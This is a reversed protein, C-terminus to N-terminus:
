YNVGIGYLHTEKSGSAQNAWVAKYRVDSGSTCTTEGLKVMKIGTSFVPTVATYSAAETWNSGGNCTFYIKLDTGITATGANDKYNMVGSVKTQASSPVSAIGILTGTANATAVLNPTFTTGSPYRCVDSIRCEDIYGQYEAVTNNDGLLPDNMTFNFGSCSTVSRAVGNEYGRINDGDRTIAMHTWETNAADDALNAGHVPSWASGNGVYIAWNPYTARYFYCNPYASSSSSYSFGGQGSGTGSPYFWMEVTWDGTGFAFNSSTNPYLSNAATGDFNASYTGFKAQTSSRTCGSTNNMTHGTSSSDLLLTEMHLLLETNSDSTFAQVASSITSWYESANRDGDTETGIGTDDEFQDIFTNPLNFAAKNENVAQKLALTTLDQRVPTLDTPQVHATVSSASIRADAFTGSTIKSTPLDAVRANALTGTTIKATDLNPIEAADLTILSNPVGTAILNATDRAKTM